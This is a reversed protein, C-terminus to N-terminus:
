TGEFEALVEEPLSADFDPPVTFEGACLGFPRPETEPIPAPKVEAVARQGRVVLLAEGNEIRQLFAHLDHEIEEVTITTM